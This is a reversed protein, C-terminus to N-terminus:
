SAASELIVVEGTRSGVCIRFRFSGFWVMGTVSRRAILENDERLLLSNSRNRFQGANCCGFRQMATYSPECALSLGGGRRARLFCGFDGAMGRQNAQGSESTLNMVDLRPNQGAFKELVQIEKASNWPWKWGVQGEPQCQLAM